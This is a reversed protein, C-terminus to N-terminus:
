RGVPPADSWIGPVDRGERRLNEAHMHLKVEANADRIAPQREDEAKHGEEQGEEDVRV